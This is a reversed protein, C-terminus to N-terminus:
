QVIPGESQTVSKLQEVLTPWSVQRQYGIVDVRPLWKGRVIYYGGNGAPALGGMECVDEQLRCSLGIRDYAFDEFFRLFGRSLVAGAGGGGISSLNQIARQSIRHRSSDGPPTYFHADFSAPQWNVLRLQDIRGSLGGEIRGFSFTETLAKLDLNDITVNASLRPVRGLPQDLQLGDVRIRGNFAEVQLQGGLTLRGDQYRLSPLRGAITGGFEPLGLALSLPRLEIPTLEADFAIAMDPKGLRSARLTNINLAGDLVPLDLKDLLEANDGYMRLQARAPGVDVAGVAGARWHLESPPTAPDLQAQWRAVGGLQQLRFRKNRDVLDVNKLLLRVAQPKGGALSATGSIRGSTALSDAVTGILFPQVYLQYAGPLAAERVLLQLDQLGKDRQWRLTAEAELVTPQHLRLDTLRLEGGAANWRGNADIRFPYAAADIFVPEAYLQGKESDLQTVFALEDGHRRLAATLAFSLAETAFSGDSTAVTANGVALRLRGTTTQADSTLRFEVNATGTAEAEALSVYEAAITRLATLSLDAGRGQAQWRGSQWFGNAQMRGRAIPIDVLSFSARGSRRDFAISGRFPTDGINRHRLRFRGDDCRIIPEDVVMRGCAAEIDRVVGVPQPLTLRGIYVSGGGDILSLGLRVHDARWGDGSVRGLGIDLRESASAAALWLVPLLLLARGIARM